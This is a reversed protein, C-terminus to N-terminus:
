KGAATILVSGYWTTKYTLQRRLEGFAADAIVRSRRHNRMMGAVNLREVVITDHSTALRTTLRHLGDRRIRVIRAHVRALRKQTQWWGTSPVRRAGDPARPGRRRALQRNLQRLRRQAHDLPHPNAITEGTSLVALHRIGVDVGVTGGHRQTTSATSPMARHVEVTFSIYWRDATKAITANLIRATGAELRGPSSVPRSM